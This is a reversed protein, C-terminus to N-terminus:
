CKKERAFNLFRDVQRKLPSFFFFLARQKPFIGLRYRLRVISLESNFPLLHSRWLTESNIRSASQQYVRFFYQSPLLSKSNISYQLITSGLQFIIAPIVQSHNLKPIVLLPRFKWCNPKIFFIKFNERFHLRELTPTINTAFYTFSTCVNHLYKKKFHDLHWFYCRRRDKENKTEWFKVKWIKCLNTVFVRFNTNLKSSM